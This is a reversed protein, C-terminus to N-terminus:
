LTKLFAELKKLKDDSLKYPIEIKVGKGSHKLSIEKGQSKDEQLSAIYEKLAARDANSDVFWFYVKEIIGPENLRRIIDLAVMDNVSKNELLDDIVKKPLEVLKVIKSVHAKSKGIELALTNQNKFAGSSIADAYALALEMNHLNDRQLNEIISEVRLTADDKEEVVIAKISDLGLLRHAEARRHGAIIYMDRNEKMLVRIPQQLGKRSISSALEALADKNMSLRPQHPNDRLHSLSVEMFREGDIAATAGQGAPQQSDQKRKMMRRQTPSGSRGVSDLIDNM